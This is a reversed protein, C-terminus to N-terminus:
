GAPLESFSAVVDSRMTETVQFITLGASRLDKILDQLTAKSVAGASIRDGTATNSAVVIYQFRDGTKM